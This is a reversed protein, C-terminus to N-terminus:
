RRRLVVWTFPQEVGHPTVHVERESSALDFKASFQEALGEADYRCVPLGSCHTPGDTAFTAVVLWGGPAVADSALQVYRAQADPLTLFHFVARDHWLDFTRDPVWELLDTHVLAVREPKGALRQRVVDLATESVDVLTIDVFGDALLCDALSSTGAGVDVVSASVGVAAEVLRVSTDPAARFWSLEESPRSQYVRQWHNPSSTPVGCM